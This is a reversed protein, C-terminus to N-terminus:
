KVGKAGTAGQQGKYQGDYGQTCGSVYSFVIQCIKIGEELYIPHETANFLELTLQGEFGPDVFGANEIFLGTRGITSKGDVRGAICKDLKIREETSALVFEKPQIIVHGNFKEHGYNGKRYELPLSPNIYSGFIGEHFNCGKIIKFKHHLTLDYSAPEVHNENFPDIEILGKSVAQLIEENGLYL